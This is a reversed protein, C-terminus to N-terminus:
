KNPAIADALLRAICAQGAHNLHGDNSLFVHVGDHEASQLAPLADVITVDREGSFTKIIGAIFPYNQETMREQNSFRAGIKQMRNLYAPSVQSSHPIVLLVLTVNSKRCLDHLATLGRLMHDYDVARQRTVLVQNEILCPEATMYLRERADYLVPSFEAERTGSPVDPVYSTLAGTRWQGLRYNLFSLSRLHSSLFWYIRRAMTINEGGSPYRIDFLDNGAFIQYVCTGPKFARLRGPAVINAQVIGTGPIGSNIIRWEPLLKRLVDPYSTTGATFSDGIALLVPGNHTGTLAEPPNYARLETRYFDLWQFRYVLELLGVTLALFCATIITSFIFRKLLSRRTRDTEQVTDQQNGQSM